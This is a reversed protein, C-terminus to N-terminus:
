CHPSHRDVRGPEAADATSNTRELADRLREYEEVNIEGSALRRALIGEPTDEDHGSTRSTHGSTHHRMMSAMMVVCLFAMVLFLPWAWSGNNGWWMM